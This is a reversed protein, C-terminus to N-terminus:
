MGRSAELALDADIKSNDAFQPDDTHMCGAYKMLSKISGKATSPDITEASSELSRAFELVQDQNDTSLREMTKKLLNLTTM